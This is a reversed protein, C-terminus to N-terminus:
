LNYDNGVTTIGCPQCRIKQRLSLMVFGSLADKNGIISIQNISDRLLNLFM